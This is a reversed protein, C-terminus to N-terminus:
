YDEGLQYKNSVYDINFCEFHLVDIKEMRELRDSSAPSQITISLQYLCTIINGIEKMAEKLLSTSRIEDDIESDVSDVM